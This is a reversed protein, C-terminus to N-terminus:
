LNPVQSQFSPKLVNRVEARCHIVTISLAMDSNEFRLSKSDLHDTWLSRTDESELKQGLLNSLCDKDRVIGNSM